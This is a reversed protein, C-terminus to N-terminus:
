WSLSSDKSEDLRISNVHHLTRLKTNLKNVNPTNEQGHCEITVRDEHQFSNQNVKSVNVNTENVNLNMITNVNKFQLRMSTRNSSSKIPESLDTNRRTKPLQSIISGDNIIQSRKFNQIDQDYKILDSNEDYDVKIMSRLSRTQINKLQSKPQKVLYKYSLKKRKISPLKNIIDCVSKHLSRVKINVSYETNDALSYWSSYSDDCIM